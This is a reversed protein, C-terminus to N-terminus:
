WGYQERQGKNRDSSMPPPLNGGGQGFSVPARGFSITKGQLELILPDTITQNPPLVPSQQTLNTRQLIAVYQRVAQEVRQLQQEAVIARQYRVLLTNLARAVQWLVNDQSFPARAGLNGNAVEVHTQLIQEIGDEISKSRESLEHELRAVTEARDARAIANFLSAALISMVGAILVLIGIPRALIIAARTQLDVDLTPTRVMTFLTFFIAVLSALTSIIVFRIPLLSVTLAIVIVYMDYGQLTTEDLPTTTLIAVTLATFACVNVLVGAGMTHGSRNLWLAILCVLFLGLDLWGYSPYPTFFCAPLLGLVMVTFFFLVNSTTRSRRVVERAKYSASPGPEPLATMKNWRQLFTQKKQTQQEEIFEAASWSEETKMAM